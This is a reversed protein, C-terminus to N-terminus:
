RDKKASRVTYNWDGRFLARKIGVRRLQEDTVKKRSRILVRISRPESAFAQNRRRPPSASFSSVGFGHVHRTAGGGDATVLLQTANPYATKGMERWWRELTAM